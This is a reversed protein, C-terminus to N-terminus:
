NGRTCQLRRRRWGGLALVCPAAWGTSRMTLSSCSCGTDAGDCDQDIDDRPPDTAGPFVTPDTDGCDDPTPVGDADQDFDDAGDCDQDVGDYWTEEAGPLVDGDADDCDVTAFSGDGDVDPPCAAPGGFGGWDLPTGDVDDGPGVDVGPSGAALLAPVDCSPPARFVPAARVSGDGEDAGENPAAGAYLNAAVTTVGTQQHVRVAPVAVDAFVNREVTLDIADDVDVLGGAATNGVFTNHRVVFDMRDDFYLAGRDTWADGVFVNNEVVMSRLSAGRTTGGPLELDLPGVDLAGPGDGTTNDCFTNCAFRATVLDAAMITSEEHAVNGVMVSNTWELVVNPSGILAVSGYDSVNGEFRCGDVRVDMTLGLMASPQHVKLFMAGGGHGAHNGVFESDTIWLREAGKLFLAGGYGEPSENSAFRLRSLEIRPMWGEHLYVAGSYFGANDEFSSDEIVLSPRTAPPGLPSAGGYLAPGWSAAAERVDVRRLTVDSAGIMSLWGGYLGSVGRATVDTLTGTGDTVRVSGVLDSTTDEFTADSVTLAGRVMSVDAAQTAHNGVFSAGTLTVAADTAFVVGHGAGTHGLAVWADATLAGGFLAIGSAPQGANDSWTGGEIAFAGDYWEILSAGTATNGRIEVDSLTLDTSSGRILPASGSSSGAFRGGVITVTSGDMALATVAFAEPAPALDEFVVGSLTATVASLELARGRAVGRWEVDAADFAALVVRVGGPAESGADVVVRTLAVDATVADLPLANPDDSTLVVDVLDVSGSFVFLPPLRASGGAGEIRLDQGGFSLRGEVSADYSPDVRIVDGSVAAAVADALTGGSPVDFTAARASGGFAAAVLVARIV